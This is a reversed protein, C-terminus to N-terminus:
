ANEVHDGKETASRTFADSKSENELREAKERMEKKYTKFFAIVAVVCLGVILLMMASIFYIEARSAGPM